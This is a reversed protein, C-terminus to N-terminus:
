IEGAFFICIIEVLSFKSSETVAVSSIKVYIDHVFPNLLVMVQLHSFTCLFYSKEM